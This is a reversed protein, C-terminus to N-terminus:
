RALPLALGCRRTPPVAEGFSYVLLAFFGRHLKRSACALARLRQRNWAPTPGSIM